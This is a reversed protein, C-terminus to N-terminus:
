GNIIIIDRIKLEHKITNGLIKFVIKFFSLLLCRCAKKLKVPIVLIKGSLM